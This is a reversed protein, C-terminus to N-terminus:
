YRKCTEIIYNILQSLKVNISDWYGHTKCACILDTFQDNVQIEVINNHCNLKACEQNMVFYLRPLWNSFANRFGYYQMKSMRVIFTEADKSISCSIDNNKAKAKNKLMPFYYENLGESITDENLYFFPIFAINIGTLSKSINNYTKQLEASYHDCKDRDIKRASPQTLIEKLQSGSKKILIQRLKL